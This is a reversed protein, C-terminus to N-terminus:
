ALFRTRTRGFKKWILIRSTGESWCINTYGGFPVTESSQLNVAAWMMINGGGHKVTPIISATGTVEDHNLKIM